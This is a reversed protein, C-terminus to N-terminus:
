RILTIDGMREYSGGGECYVKVYYVFVGPNLTKGNYTGNWVGNFDNTEFVKEGWRDYISLHISLVGNGIGQVFFLDNIGDGNPTFANPVFIDTCLKLDIFASNLFSGSCCDDVHTIVIRNLEGAVLLYELYEITGEAAFIYGGPVVVGDPYLSNFITVRVGDDIGIFSISCTKVEVNEPINVFTQFFTFEGAKRCKAVECLTSYVNFNIIDPDPAAIWGTDNQSPINDAYNYELIALATPIRVGFTKLGGGHHMQWPSISQSISTRLNLSLAILVVVLVSFSFQRM